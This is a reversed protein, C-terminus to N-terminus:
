KLTTCALFPMDCHFSSEVYGCNLNWAGHERGDEISAFIYTFINKPSKQLEYKPKSGNGAECIQGSQGTGSRRPRASLMWWSLTAERRARVASHLASWAVMWKLNSATSAMPAVMGSSALARLGSSISPHSPLLSLFLFVGGVM